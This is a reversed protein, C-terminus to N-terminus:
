VCAEEEDHLLHQSVFHGCTLSPLAMSVMSESAWTMSVSQVQSEMSLDSRCNLGTLSVWVTGGFASLSNQSISPFIKGMSLTGASGEPEQSISSRSARKRSMSSNPM